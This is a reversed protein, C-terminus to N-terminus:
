EPLLKKISAICWGPIDFTQEPHFDDSHVRFLCHDIQTHIDRDVNSCRLISVIKWKMENILCEVGVLDKIVTDYKIPSLTAIPVDIFRAQEVGVIDERRPLLRLTAVDPGIKVIEFRGVRGVAFVHDGVNIRENQM